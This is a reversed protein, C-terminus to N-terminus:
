KYKPLQNKQSAYPRNPENTNIRVTSSTGMRGAGAAKALVCAANKERKLYCTEIIVRVDAAGSSAV